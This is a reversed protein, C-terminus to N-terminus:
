RSCTDVSKSLANALRHRCDEHERWDGCVAALYLLGYVGRSGRVLMWTYALSCREVTVLTTGTTQM